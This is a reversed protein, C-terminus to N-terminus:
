LLLDMLPFNLDLIQSFIEACYFQYLYMIAARVLTLQQIGKHMYNVGKYTDSNNFIFFEVYNYLSSVLLLVGVIKKAIHLIKTAIYIYISCRQQGYAVCRRRNCVRIKIYINIYKIGAGFTVAYIFAYVCVLVCM